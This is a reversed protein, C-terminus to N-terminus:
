DIVACTCPLPLYNMARFRQNSNRKFILNFISTKSTFPWTSFCKKFDNMLYKKKMKSLYFIINKFYLQSASKQFQEEYIKKKMQSM